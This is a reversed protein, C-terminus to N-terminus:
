EGQIIKLAERYKIKGTYLAKGLIAGEIQHAILKLTKIDELSTIGGAILPKVGSEEVFRAIIERRIGELTGDRAVDTFIFNRVGKQKLKKAITSAKLLTSKQWGHIALNGNNSVDLSVVLQEPKEEVLKELLQPNDYIVSGLVIRSAGIELYFKFTQYNRIGGGVQVPIRTKKIIEAIVKANKPQGEKAGELDVVHLLPAGEAEWQQAIQVPSESFVTKQDYNGQKLRVVKGNIIDIAPALIM